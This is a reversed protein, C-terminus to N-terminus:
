FLDNLWCSNKQYLFEKVSAHFVPGASVFMGAGEGELTWASSPLNLKPNPSVEVDVSDFLDTKVIDTLGDAWRAEADIAFKSPPLFEIEGSPIPRKNLTKYVPLARGYDSLKFREHIQLADELVYGYLSFELTITTSDHAVVSM